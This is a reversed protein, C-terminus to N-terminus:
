SDANNKFKDTTEKFLKLGEKTHIDVFEIYKDLKGVVKPVNFIGYRKGLSSDYFLFGSEKEITILEDLTINEPCMSLDYIITYDKM